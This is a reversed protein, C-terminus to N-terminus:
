AGNAGDPALVRNHSHQEPRMWRCPPLDRFSGAPLHKSEIVARGVPGWALHCLIVIGMVSSRFLAPHLVASALFADGPSCIFPGTRLGRFNHDWQNGVYGRIDTNNNYYRRYRTDMRNIQKCLYQGCELCFKTAENIELANNIGSCKDFLHTCRTNRSRCGSCKSRNLNNVYALYKSCISCNMGCPAILGESIPVTGMGKGRGKRM